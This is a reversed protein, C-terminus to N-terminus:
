IHYIYMFHNQNPCADYINIYWYILLFHISIAVGQPHSIDDGQLVITHFLNQVTFKLIWLKNKFHSKFFPKCAFCISKYKNLTLTRSVFSYKRLRFSQSLSLTSPFFPYLIVTKIIFVLLLSRFELTEYQSM